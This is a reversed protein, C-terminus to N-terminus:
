EKTRYYRNTGKKRQLTSCQIRSRNRFTNMRKSLRQMQQTSDRYLTAKRGLQPRIRSDRSTHSTPSTQQRKRNTRRNRSSSIYEHKLQHPKGQLINDM